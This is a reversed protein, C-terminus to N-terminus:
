ANFENKHHKLHNSEIIAIHSAAALLGVGASFKHLRKHHLAGSITATGFGAVATWGTASLPNVGSKHPHTEEQKQENSKFSYTPNIGIASVKM